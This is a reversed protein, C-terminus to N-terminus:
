ALITDRGQGSHECSPESCSECARSLHPVVNILHPVTVLYAKATGWRVLQGRQLVTSSKTLCKEAILCCVSAM